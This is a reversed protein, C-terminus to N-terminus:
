SIFAQTLDLFETIVTIQENSFFDFQDRYPKKLYEVTSWYSNSDVQAYKLCWIMYAPIYYRFGKGDMFAFVDSFNELWKDPIEQWPLHADIQRALEPDEYDDLARAQHITIGKELQTNQFALTIKSILATRRQDIIIDLPQWNPDRFDEPTPSRVWDLWEAECAGFEMFNRQAQRLSVQNSQSIRDGFLGCINGDDEWCCIPCILYTEPPQATLTHYGCCPCPYLNQDM